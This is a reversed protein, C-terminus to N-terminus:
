GDNVIMATEQGGDGGRRWSAAWFLSDEGPKASPKFCSVAGRNTEVVCKGLNGNELVAVVNINQGPRRLRESGWWARLEVTQPPGRGSAARDPAKQHGTM